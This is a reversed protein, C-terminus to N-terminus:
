PHYGHKWGRSGQAVCRKRVSLLDSRHTNSGRWFISDFQDNVKEFKYNYNNFANEIVMINENYELFSDKIHQTSVTIFDAKKLCEKTSEVVDKTSYHSYAPNSKPIELINDDWDIWVPINMDKAMDMMNIFYKSDPRALFLIDTNSLITWDVVDLIKIKINPNIKNLKSFPGISRYYSCAGQPAVECISINM